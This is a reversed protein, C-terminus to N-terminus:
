AFPILQLITRSVTGSYMLLLVILPVASFTTLFQELRFKAPVLKFKKDSFVMDTVSSIKDLLLKSVLMGYVWIFMYAVTLVSSRPKLRSVLRLVSIFSILQLWVHM